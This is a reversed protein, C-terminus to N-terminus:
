PRAPTGWHNLRALTDAPTTMVRTMNSWATAVMEWPPLCERTVRRKRGRGAELVAFEGCLWREMQSRYEVPSKMWGRLISAPTTASVRRAVLDADVYIIFLVIYTLQLPMPTESTAVAMLATIVAKRSPSGDDFRECFDTIVWVQTEQKFLYDPLSHRPLASM